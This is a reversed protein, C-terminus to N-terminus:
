TNSRNAHYPGATLTLNISLSRPFYSVVLGDYCYENVSSHDLVPIAPVAPQARPDTLFFFFFFLLAATSIFLIAWYKYM